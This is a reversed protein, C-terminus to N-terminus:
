LSLVLCGDVYPDELWPALYTNAMLTLEIM